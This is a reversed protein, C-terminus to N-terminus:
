TIEGSKYAHLRQEFDDRERRLRENEALLADHAVKWRQVCGSLTSIAAELEVTAASEVHPQGDSRVPADGGRRDVAGAETSTKETSTFSAPRAAGPTPLASGGVSDTHAASKM